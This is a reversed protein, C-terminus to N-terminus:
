SLPNRALAWATPLEIPAGDADLQTTQLTDDGSEIVHLGHRTLLVDLQRDEDQLTAASMGFHRQLRAFKVPAAEESEIFSRIVWRTLTTLEHVILVGRHGLLVAVGRLVRQQQDSSLQHLVSRVYVNVEGLETALAAVAADELLDVQRYEVNAAANDRRAIALAPEAIDVGIVRTFSEALRVTQRGSGCGLDIIPLAPDVHPMCRRLHVAAATASPSDFLATEGAQAVEGWYAEWSQRLETTM